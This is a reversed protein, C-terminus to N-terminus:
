YIRRSNPSENNHIDDTKKIDRDFKGPTKSVRNGPANTRWTSSSTVKKKSPDYAILAEHGDPHEYLNERTGQPTHESRNPRYGGSRLAEHYPKIPHADNAQKLVSNGPNIM